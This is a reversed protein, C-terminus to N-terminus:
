NELCFATETGGELRTVTAYQRAAGDELTYAGEPSVTGCKHGAIVRITGLAVTTESGDGVDVATSNDSLEELGDGLQAALEASTPEQGRNNTTYNNYAAAVTSVDSRRATDRQGRQLAPLAIFVMLFILGAIALVLVVEIITFGQKEKATSM